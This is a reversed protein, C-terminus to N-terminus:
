RVPNLLRFLGTPDMGHLHHHQHHNRHIIEAETNEM